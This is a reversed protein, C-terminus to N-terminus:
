PANNGEQQMRLYFPHILKKVANKVSRIIVPKWLGKFECYKRLEHRSFDKLISVRGYIRTDGLRRPYVHPESDFVYKYGSQAASLYTFLNSDGGPISCSDIRQGLVDELILKSTVWEMKM